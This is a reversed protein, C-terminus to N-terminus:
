TNGGMTPVLGLVWRAGRVTIGVLYAAIAIGVCVVLLSWPVWVGLGSFSSTFGNLTADFNVIEAPAEWEPFLGLFWTAVTNILGIFWESIM